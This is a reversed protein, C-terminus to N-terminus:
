EGRRTVGAGTAYGVTTSVGSSNIATLTLHSGTTSDALTETTRATEVWVEGTVTLGAAAVNAAIAASNAGTDFSVNVTSGVSPAQVAATPPTYKYYGTTDFVLAQGGSSATWTLTGNTITYSYGAGSGSASATETFVGATWTGLTYDVGEFNVSAVKANDVLSDVGAGNASFSTVAEGIGLGGDTGLGTTVNGEMFTNNALLTDFDNRAIPQGDIVEITTTASATDGDNDIITYDIDFTVGENALGQTYYTYKGTAFDIIISGHTFGKSADLTM